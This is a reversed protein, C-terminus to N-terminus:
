CINHGQSLHSVWPFSTSVHFGVQVSWQHYVRLVVAVVVGVLGLRTLQRQVLLVPSLVNLVAPTSGVVIAVMVMLFGKTWLASLHALECLGVHLVAEAACRQAIHLAVLSLLSVAVPAVSAMPVSVPLAPLSATDGRMVALPHLHVVLVSPGPLM